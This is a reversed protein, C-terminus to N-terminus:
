LESLKKNYLIADETPSKYFGKREGIETYGMCSYLRRAATNSRRVELFIEDCGKSLIREHLFSLLQKGIKRGRYKDDVAIRLLESEYPSVTAYAFGCIEDGDLAVCFAAGINVLSLLAGLSSADSFHTAERDAIDSLRKDSAGSIEEFRIEM